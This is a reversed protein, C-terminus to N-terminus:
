RLAAVCGRVWACCRGCSGLAQVAGILRASQLLCSAFSCVLSRVQGDPQGAREEARRLVLLDVEAGDWRYTVATLFLAVKELWLAPGEWYPRNSPLFSEFKPEPSSVSFYPPGRHDVGELRQQNKKCM